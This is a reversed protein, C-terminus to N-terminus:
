RRAAQKPPAPKADRKEIEKVPAVFEDPTTFHKFVSLFRVYAVEDIKRLHVMTTEGLEASSVEKGGREHLQTEIESVIDDAASIALSRKDCAKLISDRLKQRNFSERRGDRKVVHPM